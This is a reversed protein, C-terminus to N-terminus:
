LAPPATVTLVLALATQLGRGVRTWVNPGAGKVADIISQLDVLVPDLKAKLEPWSKIAGTEIATVVPRMKATFARFGADIRTQAAAPVVGADRFTVEIRSAEDAIDIILNVLRLGHVSFAKVDAEIVPSAAPLPQVPPVKAGCAWFTLAASLCLVLSLTRM